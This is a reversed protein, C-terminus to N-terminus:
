EVYSLKMESAILLLCWTSYMNHTKTSKVSHQQRKGETCMLTTCAPMFAPTQITM